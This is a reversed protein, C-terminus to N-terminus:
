AAGKKKRAALMYDAIRFAMDAREENNQGGRYDRTCALIGTIAHAAFFDRLSLGDTMEVEGKRRTKTATPFVTAHGMRM